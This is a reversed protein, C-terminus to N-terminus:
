QHFSSRTDKLFRERLEGAAEHMRPDLSTIMETFVLLPHALHPAHGEYSVTGPTVLITLPGDNDRLARLRGLEDTPAQGVHIVTGEGRYYGSM